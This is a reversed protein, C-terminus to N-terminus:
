VDLDALNQDRFFFYDLQAVTFLHGALAQEIRTVHHHLHVHVVLQPM